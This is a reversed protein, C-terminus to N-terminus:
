VIGRKKAEKRSLTVFLEDKRILKKVNVFDVQLVIASNNQNFDVRHKIVRRSSREGKREPLEKGSKRGLFLAAPPM